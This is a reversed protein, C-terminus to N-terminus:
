YHALTGDLRAREVAWRFTILSLPFLVVTFGALVLLDPLLEAWSAGTLLSLRMARLAYTVPVIKSFFQL